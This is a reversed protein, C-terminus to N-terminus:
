GCYNNLAVFVRASQLGTRKNGDQFIHNSIINFMYLAAKDAITPYLPEGFIKAGATEILYGLHEEHLFNNPPLFSGGHMRVTLRNIHVIDEKQLYRIM